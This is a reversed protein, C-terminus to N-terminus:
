PGCATRACGRKGYGSLLTARTSQYCLPALARIVSHRPARTLGTGGIHACVPVFHGERLRKKRYTSRAWIYGKGVWRVQSEYKNELCNNLQQGERILALLSGVEAIRVTCPRAGRGEPSGPGLEYRNIPPRAPM